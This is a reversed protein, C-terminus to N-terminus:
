KTKESAVKKEGDPSLEDELSINEVDGLTPKDIDTAQVLEVSAMAEFDGEVFRTMLEKIKDQDVIFRGGFVPVTAVGEVPEVNRRAIAPHSAFCNRECMRIAMREAFKCRHIHSRFADQIDVHSVDVWLAAPGVPFAVVSSKDKLQNPKVEKTGYGGAGARSSVKHQLDEIFYLDVDFRLIREIAVLNGIPAPGMVIRRVTVSKLNKDEGFEFHPNSALAGSALITKPAVVSLGAAQNLKDYGDASICWKEGLSYIEKKSERLTVNVKISETFGDGDRRVFCEGEGLVAMREKQIDLVAQVLDKKKLKELETKTVM